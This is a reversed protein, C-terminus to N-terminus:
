RSRLMRLVEVLSEPDRMGAAAPGRDWGFAPVGTVGARFGAELARDVAGRYRRMSWASRVDAGGVGYRATLRALVDLKSIDAGEAFFARSVDHHFRGQAEDGARERVLEGIELAARSNVNRQPPEIPLGVEEALEILRERVKPWQDASYPKPAGEPPTEPHLEFPLWRLRAGM